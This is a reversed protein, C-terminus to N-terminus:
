AVFTFFFSVAIYMQMQFNDFREDFRDFKKDVKDFKKEMQQGMAAIQDSIAALKESHKVGQHELMTLRTSTSADEIANSMFRGQLPRRVRPFLRVMTKYM